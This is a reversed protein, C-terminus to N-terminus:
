GIIRIYEVITTYCKYEQPVPFRGGLIEAVRQTDIGTHRDSSSVQLTEPKRVGDRTM